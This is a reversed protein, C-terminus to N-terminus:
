KAKVPYKTPEAWFAKPCNMCCFGVAQQGHVVVFQPDVPKGSVPCIANVPQLAAAVEPSPPKQGPLPLENVFKLEGEVELAKAPPTDGADVTLGQKQRLRAIAENPLGSNWVYVKTLAPLALIADVASDDLRTQALILEKLKTLGALSQVGQTTVHTLRLDLRSLAPMRSCLTCLADGVPVRALGLDTIHEVLPQLLSKTEGETMTTAVAAFDITLGVGGPPAERVDIQRMRLADIASRNLPAKPADAAPAQQKAVVTVTATATASVPQTAAADPKAVSTAKAPTVEQKTPAVKAPDQKTEAPKVPDQKTDTQTAGAPKAANPLPAPQTRAEVPTAPAVPAVKVENTKVETLKVESTPAVKTEVPAAKVADGGAKTESAAGSPAAPAAAEVFPAGAAIWARLTAIEEATPQPKGKPPMHGDEDIPLLVNTLLKSEDPKGPVLVAGNEGGKEIGTRDHLQLEGKHKEPNHCTICVRRLIPQVAAYTVPPTALPLSKTTAGPSTSAASNQTQGQAQPATQTAPQQPSTANATPKQTTSPQVAPQATSQAAPKAPASKPAFPETLFDEGHTMGGGLHGAPMLVLLLAVLLSRFARRARFGSTAAALLGLTGASVGFWRHLEFNAGSNAGEEGLMWGTSAALAGSLAAIWALSTIAGPAVPPAAPAADLANGELTKPKRRFIAGGFELVVVGFWLGIPLHLVLPHLRGFFMWLSAQLDQSM